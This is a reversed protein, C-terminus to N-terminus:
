NSHGSYERIYEAIRELLPRMQAVIQRAQDFDGCQELAQCLDAFGHAGVTRAPSKSRHGLAALAAMNEQRLAVEIEDLGLQASQLYRLAFNRLKVPDSGIVKELVSLDIVASDTTIAPQMKLTAAAVQLAAAQGTSEPLAEAVADATRASALCQAVVAYLQDPFVPKSVFYDMGAAFCRSRDEHGANATMAVIPLDALAPNRRIQRAAELGDMLPMQMDMLVCDFRHKQLMDIAEQGNSVISVRAGADRLIELAVQQNFINDEALLITADRLVETNLPLPQAHAVRENGKALRATFWFTSGHNPQSEVGLTGDMLEVLQKSIALGLGTGGYKRTTSADAQHFAKFLNDIAEASIGIGSDQVELRMLLHRNSEELIRARVSIEGKDTFKIANSTYNLLVQTLRLPDGRLPLALCDDPHFILRLGKSAASYALQNSLIDFVAHMEFDLTELELKNAEIKSFDLINNILALLHHAAYDIKSLYDYQKADLDTKLALKTMGIISNMPTRIEHSVTSLFANKAANAAEAANMADLLKAESEKRETIDRASVIYAREEEFHIESTRLELPFHSGDSRQGVIERIVGIINESKQYCKRYGANLGLEQPPMVMSFNQGIAEGKNYGFVSEAKDNWNVINGSSDLQIFADPSNEFIAILKAENLRRSERMSSFARVLNGLEDRTVPPLVASYDGLALQDAARGLRVLPRVILVSVVAYIVVGFFLTTFTLAIAVVRYIDIVAENLRDLSVFMQVSGITKGASIIPAKFINGKLGPNFNISSRSVLVTGERDLINVQEVDHLKVFREALSQMNPYDSALLLNALSEAMLTVRENGSRNIDETIKIKDRQIRFSAVVSFGAVLGILVIVLLKGRLNLNIKQM